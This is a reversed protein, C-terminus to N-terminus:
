AGVEAGAECVCLEKELDEIRVEHDDILNILDMDANAHPGCQLAAELVCLRREHDDLRHEFRRALEDQNGANLVHFVGDADEILSPESGNQNIMETEEDQVRQEDTAVHVLRRGVFEFDKRGLKNLDVPRDEKLLRAIRFQKGRLQFGQTSKRPAGRKSTMTYVVLFTSGARVEDDYLKQMSGNSSQALRIGSEPENDPTACRQDSEYIYTHSTAGAPAMHSKQCMWSMDRTITDDTTANLGLLIAKGAQVFDNDKNNSRLKSPLCTAARAAQPIQLRSEAAFRNLLAVGNPHRQVNWVSAIGATSAVMNSSGSDDSAGAIANM